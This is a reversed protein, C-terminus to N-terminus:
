LKQIKKILARKAMAKGAKGVGKAVKMGVSKGLAMVKKKKKDAMNLLKKGETVVNGKVKMLKKKLDAEVKKKKKELMSKLSGVKMGIKLKM